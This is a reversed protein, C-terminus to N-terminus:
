GPDLIWYERGLDPCPPIEAESCCTDLILYGPDLIWYGADLMWLFM